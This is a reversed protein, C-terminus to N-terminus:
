RERTVFVAPRFREDHTSRAITSALEELFPELPINEATRAREATIAPPFAHAHHANPFRYEITALPKHRLTTKLDFLILDLDHHEDDALSSATRCRLNHITYRSLFAETGFHNRASQQLADQEFPNNPVPAHLHNTEIPWAADEARRPLDYATRLTWLVPVGTSEFQPQIYLQQARHDALDALAKIFSPTTTEDATGLLAVLGQNTDHVEGNCLVSWGFHDKRRVTFDIVANRGVRGETEIRYTVNQKRYSVDSLADYVQDKFELVSVPRKRLPQPEM